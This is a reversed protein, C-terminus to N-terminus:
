GVMRGFTAIAKFVVQVNCSNYWAIFRAQQENFIQPCPGTVLRGTSLCAAVTNAHGRSTLSHPFDRQLLQVWQGPIMKLLGEEGVFWRILMVLRGLM